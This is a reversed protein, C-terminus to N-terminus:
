RTGDTKSTGEDGFMVEGVKGLRRGVSRGLIILIWGGACFGLCTVSRLLTTCNNLLSFPPTGWQDEPGWWCDERGKTQLLFLLVLGGWFFLHSLLRFRLNSVRLSLNLSDADSHLNDNPVPGPGPIDDSENSYYNVSVASMRTSTEPSTSEASRLRDSSRSKRKPM